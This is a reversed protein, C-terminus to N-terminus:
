TTTRRLNEIEHWRTCTGGLAGVSEFGCYVPMPSKIRCPSNAVVKPDVM